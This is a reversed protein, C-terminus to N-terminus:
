QHHKELLFTSQNTLQKLYNNTFLSLFHIFLKYILTNHYKHCQKLFVLISSLSSPFCSFHNFFDYQNNHHTIHTFHAQLAQLYDNIKYEQNTVSLLGAMLQYGLQVLMSDIGSLSQSAKKILRMSIDFLSNNIEM